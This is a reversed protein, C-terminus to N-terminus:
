SIGVDVRLTKEKITPNKLTSQRSSATARLINAPFQAFPVAAAVLPAASVGSTNIKEEKDRGPISRRPQRRDIIILLRPRRTSSLGSDWRSNEDGNMMFESSSEASMGIIHDRAPNFNKVSLTDSSQQGITSNSQVLSDVSQKRSYKESQQELACISKSSKLIIAHRYRM